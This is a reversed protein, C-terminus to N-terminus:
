NDFSGCHCAAVSGRRAPLLNKEGGGERLGEGGDGTVQEPNSNISMLIQALM